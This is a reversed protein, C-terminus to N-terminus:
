IEYYPTVTDGEIGTLEVRLINRLGELEQEAADSGASPGPAAALAGPGPAAPAEAAVGPPAEPEAAAAAAQAAAPAGEEESLDVVEPILPAQANAPAAPPPVSAAREEAALGEHQEEAAEAAPAAESEPSEEDDLLAMDEEAAAAEGGRAPVSDDEYELLEDEGHHSPTVTRSESGNAVEVVEVAAAPAVSAAAPVEQEVPAVSPAGMPVMPVSPTAAPEVETREMAASPAPVVEVPETAAPPASAEGVPETMATPAPAEVAVPVAHSPGAEGALVRAAPHVLGAMPRPDPRWAGKGTCKEAHQQADLLELYLEPDEEKADQLSKAFNGDALVKRLRQAMTHAAEVARQHIAREREAEPSRANGAAAKDDHPEEPPVPAPPPPPPQAPGAPAAQGREKMLRRAMAMSVGGRPIPVPPGPPIPYPAMPNHHLMMRRQKGAAAGAPPEVPPEVPPAAGSMTSDTGSDGEESVTEWSSSSSEWEDEGGPHVDGMMVEMGVPRGPSYFLQAKAGSEPDGIVM